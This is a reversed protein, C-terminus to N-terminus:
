KNRKKEPTVINISGAEAQDYITQRIIVKLKGTQMNKFEDKCQITKCGAPCDIGILVWKYGNYNFRDTLYEGNAKIIDNAM